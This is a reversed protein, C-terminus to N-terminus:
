PRRKMRRLANEVASLAESSEENRRELSEVIGDLLGAAMDKAFALATDRNEAVYRSEGNVLRGNLISYRNRNFQPAVDVVYKDRVDYQEVIKHALLDAAEILKRTTESNAEGVRELRKLAEVVQSM